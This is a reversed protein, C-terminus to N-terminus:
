GPRDAKPMEKMGAIPSFVIWLVAFLGGVVGVIIADRLGLAEGLFGALLGGLPMTGWIMFRMSANMKGMQSDPTITQRLSVQGINYVTNALGSVLMGAAFLLFALGPSVLVFLLGGLASILSGLLISRGLGVRKSFGAALLAGLVAGVGGAGYVIGIDMSDLDYMEVAYLVFLAAVISWFLNATATCGAVARLRPDRVILAVGERIESAVSPHGKSVPEPEDRTVRFLFVASALYSFSNVLVAFPATLVKVVLGAISPGLTQSVSRSAELKSNADVLNERDVLSPLYSMYAVDFFVTFVGAAFSVVYLVPMSLADLAWACPVVAVAACRGLDSMIMIPRRKRRDVWVGVVLGFLLFPLMEVAFLVGMDAATAHLLLVATLPIALLYFQSGLVSITEATWVNIFDSNRWLPSRGRRGTSESAGTGGSM